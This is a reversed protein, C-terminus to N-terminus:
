WYVVSGDVTTATATATTAAINAAVTTIVGIIIININTIIIIIITLIVTITTRTGIPIGGLLSINNQNKKSSELLRRLRLWQSM